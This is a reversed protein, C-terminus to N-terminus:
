EVSADEIIMGGLPNTLAYAGSGFSSSAALLGMSGTKNTNVGGSYIKVERTQDTVWIAPAVSSSAILTAGDLILEGGRYRICSSQQPQADSDTLQNKIYGQMRLLGGSLDFAYNAGNDNYPYLTHAKYILEGGSISYRYNSNAGQKYGTVIVKATGSVSLQGMYTSSDALEISTVGDSISFTDPSPGGTWTTHWKFSSEGGTISGNNAVGGHFEGNSIDLKGVIGNFVTQSPNAHNIGNTYGRINNIGGHTSEFSYAYTDGVAYQVDADLSSNYTRISVANPTYIRNAKIRISNIGGSTNFVNSNGSEITDAKIDIRGSGATNGPAYYFRGSGSSHRIDISFIRNSKPMGSFATGTSYNIDQAQFTFDYDRFGNVGGFYVLGGTSTINFNASGYINCALNFGNQDFINTSNSQNVTTNPYFYYNVGERALNDTGLTYTGPYVFITSGTTAAQSASELTAFPKSMNGVVATTDDGNQTVFISQTLNTGSSITTNNALNLNTGDGLYHGFSATSTISGSINGAPFEINNGDIIFKDNTGLTASSYNGSSIRFTNGTDDAGFVYAYNENSDGVKVYVDKGSGGNISELELIPGPSASEGKLHIKSGSILLSGTIQADGIVDLAGLISTSGTIQASGSMKTTGILTQTDTTDDGFINSGSTEITSSTIFSSTLHVVDLSHVKLQDTTTNYEFGSETTLEGNTTTFVVRGATSGASAAPLNTLQSGDGVFSGTYSSATVGSQVNLSGGIGVDGAADITIRDTLTGDVRTRLGFTTDGDIGDAQFGFFGSQIYESGNYAFANVAGIYDNNAVASPSAATGHSKFFRIDPGDSTDDHQAVRVQAEGSSEGVIDLKVEPTSTGIGVRQNATDIALLNSSTVQTNAGVILIENEAGLNGLQLASGTINGIIAGSASIISATIPTTTSAGQDTVQQLTPTTTNLNTLNSGDGQFSGSFNAFSATATTVGSTLNGRNIFVENSSSVQFLPLGSINNVEMLVGDLGDAVSFLPGASGEVEFIGSQSVSGSGFLRLATSDTDGSAISRSIIQAESATIPFPSPLNTLASGNGQFSGSFSGSFTSNSNGLNLIAM